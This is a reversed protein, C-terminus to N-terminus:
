SPKEERLARIIGRDARPPEALDRVRGHHEVTTRLGADELVAVLMRQDRASHYELAVATVTELFPYGLLIGLESGETDIKLFDCPPLKTPSVGRVRMPVPRQEEGKWLSACGCNPLGPYLDLDGDAYVAQNHLCILAMPLASSQGNTGYEEVNKELMAFTDPHPEYAHIGCTPWKRAAWVTFSGLNAGIDLVVKPDSPLPGVDYAGAFVGQVHRKMSEPCLFKM